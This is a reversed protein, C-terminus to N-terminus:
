VTALPSDAIFGTLIYVVWTQGKQTRALLKSFCRPTSCISSIRM